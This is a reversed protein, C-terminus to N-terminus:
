TVNSREAYMLRRRNEILIDVAFRYVAKMREVNAPVQEGDMLQMVTGRLLGRLAISLDFYDEHSGGFAEVCRQRFLQEIPRAETVGQRLGWLFLEYEQPRRLAIELVRLAYEKPSRSSQVERLFDELYVEVLAKLIAERDRFRRYLAPPNTGAMKAVNRMSLAAGGGRIWLKRAAELVKSELGEELHRPM